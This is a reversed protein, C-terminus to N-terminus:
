LHTDCGLGAVFASQLVVIDRGLGAWGRLCVAAFRHGRGAAGLGAGGCLCVAACRHAGSLGVRSLWSLMILLSRSARFLDAGGRYGM